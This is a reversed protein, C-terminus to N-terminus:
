KLRQQKDFDEWFNRRLRNEFMDFKLRIEDIKINKNLVNVQDTTTPRFQFFRLILSIMMSVTQAKM